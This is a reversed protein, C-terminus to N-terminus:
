GAQYNLLMGSTKLQAVIDYSAGTQASTTAVAGSDSRQQQLLHVMQHLLEGLHQGGAAPEAAQAEGDGARLRHHHHHGGRARPTDASGNTAASADPAGAATADALQQFLQHLKAQVTPTAPSDASSASTSSPVGSDGSAQRVADLLSQGMSPPAVPAAVNVSGTLQRVADLLDTFSPPPTSPAAPATTDAANVADALNAPEASPNEGPYALTGFPNFFSATGLGSISM